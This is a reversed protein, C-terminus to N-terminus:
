IVCLNVSKYKFVYIVCIEVLVGEIIRIDIDIYHLRCHLSIDGGRPDGHLVVSIVSCKHCCYYSVCTV